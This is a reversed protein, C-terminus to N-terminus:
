HRRPTPKQSEWYTESSPLGSKDLTLAAQHGVDVDRDELAKVLGVVDRKAELKEINPPGFLPM